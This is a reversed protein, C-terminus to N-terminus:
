PCPKGNTTVTGDAQLDFQTSVQALFGTDILALEYRNPSAGMAPITDAQGSALYREAAITLTRADAGCPDAAAQDSAGRVSFTVIASVIGLIVVVTIIEVLTFGRDGNTDTARNDPTPTTV